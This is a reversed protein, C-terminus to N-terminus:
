KYIQCNSPFGKHDINLFLHQDTHWMVLKSTPPLVHNASQLHRDAEHGPRHIVHGAESRGVMESRGTRHIVHNVEHGPRHFWTVLKTVPRFSVRNTLQPHRWYEHEQHSAKGAVKCDVFGVVLLWAPDALCPSSFLLSPNQFFASGVESTPSFVHGAKHHTPLVRSQSAPYSTM